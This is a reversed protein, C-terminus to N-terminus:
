AERGVQAARQRRVSGNEALRFVECDCQPPAAIERRAAKRSFGDLDRDSRGSKWAVRLPVHTCCSMEVLRGQLEGCAEVLRGLCRELDIERVGVPAANM